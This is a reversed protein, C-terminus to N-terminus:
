RPRGKKAIMGDDDNNIPSPNVATGEAQQQSAAAGDNNNASQDEM